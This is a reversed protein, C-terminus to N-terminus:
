ILTKYLANLQNAILEVKERLVIYSNEDIFELDSSLILFNLVGM